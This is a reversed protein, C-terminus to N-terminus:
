RAPRRVGRRPHLQDGQAQARGGDRGARRHGRGLFLSSYADTYSAAACEEIDSLDALIAEVIDPIRSSSTGCRARRARRSLTGKCRRSSSRSCTLAAIQATFTKTAAVGIEPGAHTYIVGDSERTVRSASSTPSRSSRRARARAGRARGRAHRRDRGVAHDRRRADRRRRDPRQLPVRELGAGRRPHAGVARHPEEGVLGAHYSRAARSSSSATSRARGARRDDRARLAPDRRRDMRGRLTERIAKPQEHIEKLM